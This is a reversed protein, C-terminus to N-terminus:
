SFKIWNVNGAFKHGGTSDIVLKITHKGAGLAIGSKRATTWKQFGGTNVFKMSGTVNKGDVEIHYASNNYLSAIRTDINFKGAKTVNVTYNLWEGQKMYGVDYGGGADASKEIDVATNRYQRGENAATLDRYAVGNAGNDFDEAQITTAKGATLNIAKFPSTTSAPKAPAPTATAGARAFTMRNFNGVFGSAGNKTFVLRLTHKGGTLNIGKVGVTTYANWNKTNPVTLTGSVNKGDVELYFQGGNGLSSVRFDAHYSGANTVNVSYKLWEGAKTFGVGRTSGSDNLGIVDVGGPRYNNGGTNRSDTDHYASGENGVDFNEVEITTNGTIKTPNSASQGYPAQPDPTPDPQTPPPTPVNGKGLAQRVANYLNLRPYSRKSASDYVQTASGKLISTIQANTFRPNIQRLVAAAGAIQPASWSTGDGTDVYIHKKSGVDYYPLGVKEGPALFDLAAGRQTFGSVGGGKNVSGVIAMNSNWESASARTGANGSPASVYVGMGDLKALSAKISNGTTKNGGGGYDTVNIATINYKAKNAIVWQLAAAVGSQNNQRLAVIKAGPAVGQYHQGKFDYGTAAAMGASGTGHAYADSMPNTDKGMYDYGGIVKKGWGGGLTPHNYDVGSDIIAITQGAGTLTPYQAAVKDLGILKAQQAWPAASLMQRGELAEISSHNRQSM